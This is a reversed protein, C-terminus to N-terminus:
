RVEEIKWPPVYRIQKIHDKHKWYRCGFVVVKVLGSKTKGLSICPMTYDRRIRGIQHACCLLHTARSVDYNKLKM